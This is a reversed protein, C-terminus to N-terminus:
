VLQVCIWALTLHLLQMEDRPCFRLAVPFHLPLSSLSSSRRDAESSLPAVFM